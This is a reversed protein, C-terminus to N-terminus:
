FQTRIKSPGSASLGASCGPRLPGYRPVAAGTRVQEASLDLRGICCQVIRRGYRDPRDVDRCMVAGRRVLGRLAERSAVPDGAVCRRGPHCAGPMEPADIAYLRMGRREGACRIGDGDHVTPGACLFAAAALLPLTIM